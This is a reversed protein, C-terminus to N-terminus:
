RDRALAIFSRVATDYSCNAVALDRCAKRASTRQADNWALARKMAAVLGAVDKSTALLGTEGDIVLDPLVGIPFGIVPTGSMMAENIMMPGYDEISPCVFFDAACYTLALKDSDVFGLSHVSAGLTNLATLGDTKGAVLLKVNASTLSGKADLQQLAALLLHMGKRPDALDQSGFFLYVGDREVGLADRAENRTAQGLQDPDVGILIREFRSGAFLTAGDTAEAVQSTPVVVVHDLTKVVEIKNMLTRASADVGVRGPLAPCSGCQTRYGECAWSVHCGGTLLGMDLINFVVQAGVRQQLLAIDAFSMFDSIYHVVILQPKLRDAIELLQGRTLCRATQDRFVFRRRTTFRYWVRGFLRRLAGTGPKAVAQVDPAGSRSEWVILNSHVGRDRMACHLRLAATGAGGHDVASLHLVRHDQSAEAIM